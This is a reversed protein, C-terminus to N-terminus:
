VGALVARVEDVGAAGTELWLATAGGEIEERVAAADVGVRSAVKWDQAEAAPRAGRVFPAKGPAGPAGPPEVYLPQITLGEPTQYTLTKEFPVGALEKEVQARWEAFSKEQAM